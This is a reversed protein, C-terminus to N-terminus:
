QYYSSSKCKDADSTCTDNDFDLYFQTTTGDFGHCTCSRFYQKAFTYLTSVIEDDYYKIWHITGYDLNDPYATNLPTQYNNTHYYQDQGNLKLLGKPPLKDLRGM